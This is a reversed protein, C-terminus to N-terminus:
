LNGDINKIHCDIPGLGTRQIEALIKPVMWQIYIPYCSYEDRKDKM